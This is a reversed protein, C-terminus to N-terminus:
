PKAKPGISVKQHPGLSEIQIGNERAQRLITQMDASMLTSKDVFRGPGRESFIMLPQAEGLPLEVVDKLGDVPKYPKDGVTRVLVKTVGPEVWSGSLMYFDKAQKIRTALVVEDGLDPQAEGAEGSEKLIVRANPLKVGFFQSALRKGGQLLSSSQVKRIIAPVM